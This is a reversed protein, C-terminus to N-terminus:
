KDTSETSRTDSLRKISAQERGVGAAPHFGHHREYADIDACQSNLNYRNLGIGAMGLDPGM